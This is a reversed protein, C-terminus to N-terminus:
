KMSKNLESVNLVSRVGEVRETSRWGLVMKIRAEVLFHDLM